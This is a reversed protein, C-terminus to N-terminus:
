RQLKTSSSNYQEFNRKFVTTVLIITATTNTVYIYIYIFTPLKIIYLKSDCLPQLCTYIYSFSDVSSSSSSPSSSRKRFREYQRMKIYIYICYLYLIYGNKVGRRVRADKYIYVAQRCVVVSKILKRSSPLSRCFLIYIRKSSKGYCLKLLILRKLNFWLLYYNHVVCM